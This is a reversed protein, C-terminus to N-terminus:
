GRDSHTIAGDVSDSIGSLAKGNVSASPNVLHSGDCLGFLQQAAERGFSACAKDKHQDARAIECRLAYAAGLQARLGHWEVPHLRDDGPAHRGHLQPWAESHFELEM